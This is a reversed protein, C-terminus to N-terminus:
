IGAFSFTICNFILVVVAVVFVFLFLLFSLFGPLSTVSISSTRNRLPTNAKDEIYICTRHHPINAQVEKRHILSPESSFFFHEHLLFIVFACKLCVRNKEGDKPM